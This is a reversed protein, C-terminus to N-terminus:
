KEVWGRASFGFLYQSASLYRSIVQDGWWNNQFFLVDANGVREAIKPLLGELQHARVCVMILECRDQSSWDDVVRPLFRVQDIKKPKQREDTYHIEFGDRALVDKKTERVLVSVDHGAESLQWAYVTGIVGAGLILIKM